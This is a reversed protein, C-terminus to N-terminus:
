QGQCQNTHDAQVGTLGLWRWRWWRDLFEFDAFGEATVGVGDWSRQLGFIKILASLYQNEGHFILWL